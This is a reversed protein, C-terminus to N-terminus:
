EKATDESAEDPADTEGNAPPQNEVPEEKPDSLTPASPRPQIKNFHERDYETFDIDKETLEKYKKLALNELVVADEYVMSGEENYIKANGAMLHIDEIFESLSHYINGYIRKKIMDFAVPYKILVYYDPYFKKAPRVM